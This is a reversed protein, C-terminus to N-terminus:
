PLQITLDIYYSYKEYTEHENELWWSLPSFTSFLIVTGIERLATVSIHWEDYNQRSGYELAGYLRSYDSVKGVTFKRM